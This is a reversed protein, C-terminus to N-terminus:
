LGACPPAPRQTRASIRGESLVRPPHRHPTTLGGHPEDMRRIAATLLRTTGRLGPARCVAATTTHATLALASVLGHGLPAKPTECTYHDLLFPCVTLRPKTMFLLGREPNDQAPWRRIISTAFGDM